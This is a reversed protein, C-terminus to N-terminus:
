RTDRPSPSTYLLCVTLLAALLVSIIMVVRQREQGANLFAGRNHHKRIILANGCRLDESGEEKNKEIYNKIGTELGFIGLTVALYKM